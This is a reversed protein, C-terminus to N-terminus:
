EFSRFGDLKQCWHRFYVSGVYFSESISYHITVWFQNVTFIWFRQIDSGSKESMSKWFSVAQTHVIRLNKDTISGLVQVPENTSSWIWSDRKFNYFIDSHFFFSNERNRGVTANIESKTSLPLNKILEHDGKSTMTLNRDQVPNGLSATWLFYYLPARRGSQWRRWVVRHPIRASHGDPLRM